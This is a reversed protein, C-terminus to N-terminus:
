PSDGEADPVDVPKAGTAQAGAVRRCATAATRWVEALQKQGLRDCAVALQERVDANMPEDIAKQSLQTLETKLAKIQESRDLHRQYEGPDRLQQFVLALLYEAENDAPDTQVLSELLKRAEPLNGAEIDMRAQLRRASPPLPGLEAADRLLSTATETQGSQWRCDAELALVAVTRPCRQLTKLAEDFQKLAIQSAALVTRIEETAAVEGALQLAQALEGIALEHLGFDQYVTGLMYHPRFDGPEVRSVEQLHLLTEDLRGLDYYITALWRHAGAHDPHDAVIKRLCVEAEALQGTRYLAESTMLLLPVRLPGDPDLRAFQALATEPHGALLNRAGKLLQIEAVRSTDSELKDLAAQVARRDRVDYAALGASFPDGQLRANGWWALGGALLLAGMLIGAALRRRVPWLNASTSLMRMGSVDSRM